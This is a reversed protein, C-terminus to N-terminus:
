RVAEYPENTDVGEYYLKLAEEPPEPPLKNIVNRELLQTITIGEKKAQEELLFEYVYNEIAKREAEFFSNRAQFLAGPRKREFDALTIKTGNIEVLVDGGGSGAAAAPPEAAMACLAMALAGSVFVFSRM